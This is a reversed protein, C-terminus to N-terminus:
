SRMRAAVTENCLYAGFMLAFACQPQQTRHLWCRCRSLPRTCHVQLACARADCKHPNIPERHRTHTHKHTQTYAAPEHEHGCAAAIANTFRIWMYASRTHTCTHFAHHADLWNRSARASLARCRVVPLLGVHQCAVVTSLLMATADWIMSFSVINATHPQADGKRAGCCIIIPRAIKMFKYGIMTFPWPKHSTAWCSFYTSRQRVHSHSQPWCCNM